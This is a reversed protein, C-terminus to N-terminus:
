FCKGEKSSVSGEKGISEEVGTNDKGLYKNVKKAGCVGVKKMGEKVGNDDEPKM